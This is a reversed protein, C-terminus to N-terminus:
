APSLDDSVEDGYAGWDFAERMDVGYNDAVYDSLASMVAKREGPEYREFDYLAAHYLTRLNDDWYMRMDTLALDTFLAAELGTWERPFDGPSQFFQDTM